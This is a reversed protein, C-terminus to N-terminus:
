FIFIKNVLFFLFDIENLIFIHYIDDKMGIVGDSDNWM